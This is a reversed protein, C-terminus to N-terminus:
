ISCNVVTMHGGAMCLTNALRKNLKNILQYDALKGKYLKCFRLSGSM